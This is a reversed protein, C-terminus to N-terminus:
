GGSTVLDAGAKYEASAQVAENKAQAGQGAIIDVDATVVNKLAAIIHAAVPDSEDLNAIADASLASIEESKGNALPVVSPDDGMVTFMANTSMVDELQSQHGMFWKAVIYHNVVPTTPTAAPPVTDTSPPTVTTPTTPTTTTPSAQSSSSSAGATTAIIGITSAVAIAGIVWPWRRSRPGTTTEMILREVARHTSRDRNDTRLRLPRQTNDVSERLTVACLQRDPRPDPVPNLHWFHPYARSNRYRGRTWFGDSTPGRDSRPVSHDHGLSAIALAPTRGSSARCRYSLTLAGCRVIRVLCEVMTRGDVVLVGRKEVVTEGRDGVLFVDFDTAASRCLQRDARRQGYPAPMISQHNINPHFRPVKPDSQSRLQHTKGSGLPLNRRTTGSPANTFDNRVKHIEGFRRL